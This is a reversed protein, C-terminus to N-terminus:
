KAEVVPIGPRLGMQGVTVVTEGAKVGDEIIINDDEKSGVTVNRLDAKKDPTVVFIYNGQQGIQVAEYPVVVANKKIALHLRVTVFQGSWLKMDHNPVTARLLVTGTTNNVANDLFRLEGEYSDRDKGAGSGKELTLVVKLKGESMAKRVDGLDREPIITGEDRQQVPGVTGEPSRVRGAVVERIQEPM